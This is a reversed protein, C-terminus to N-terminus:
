HLSHPVEPPSESDACSSDDKLCDLNPSGLGPEPSGSKCAFRGPEPGCLFLPSLIVGHLGLCEGCHKKCAFLTSFVSLSFFYVLLYPALSRVCCPPCCHALGPPNVQVARPASRVTAHPSVDAGMKQRKNACIGVTSLYKNGSGVTKQPLYRGAQM